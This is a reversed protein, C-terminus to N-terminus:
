ASRHTSSQFSFRSSIIDISSPGQPWITSRRARSSHVTGDHRLECTRSTEAWAAGALIAVDHALTWHPVSLDRAGGRRTARSGFRAGRGFRHARGDRRLTEAVRIPHLVMSDQDDVVLGGGALPQLLEQGHPSIVHARGRVTLLRQLPRGDPSGIEHDGVEHHGPDVSELKEGAEFAVKRGGRDNEQGTLAADLGRHLRDLVARVIVEGLGDVRRTKM